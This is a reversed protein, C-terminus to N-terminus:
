ATLEGDFRLKTANRVRSDPASPGANFSVTCDPLKELEDDGAGEAAAGDGLRVVEADLEATPLVAALVAVVLGDAPEPEPQVTDAFSTGEHPWQHPMAGFACVEVGRSTASASSSCSACVVKVSMCVYWSFSWSNGLAMSRPMANSDPFFRTSSILQFGAVSMVHAATALPLASARM